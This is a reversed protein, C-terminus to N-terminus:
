EKEKLCEKVCEGNTSEDNKEQIVENIKLAEVCNNM